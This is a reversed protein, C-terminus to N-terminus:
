SLFDPTDQLYSFHKVALSKIHHDVYASINETVSGNGSIIPREPPAKGAEHEKHIKFTAYFRAAAKEDARMAEYEDKKLIDNDFAEEVVLNVKDKINDLADQEVKKYYPKKTGDPQLQEGNLHEQCARIYEVFDLIIIGAGKDCPKITIM